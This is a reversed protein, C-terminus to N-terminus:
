WGDGLVKKMKWFQPEIGWVSVGWRGGWGRALVMKSKTEANSSELYRM